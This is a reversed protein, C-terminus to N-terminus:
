TYMSMRRLRFLLFLLLRYITHVEDVPEVQFFISLDYLCFGSRHVYIYNVPLLLQVSRM